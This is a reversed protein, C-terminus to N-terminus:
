ASPPFSQECDSFLQLLIRRILDMCLIKLWRNALKHTASRRNIRKLRRRRKLCSQVVASQVSYVYGVGYSHAATLAVFRLRLSKVNIACTTVSGSLGVGSIPAHRLAAAIVYAAAM